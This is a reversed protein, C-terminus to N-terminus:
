GGGGIFAPPWTRGLGCSLCHCVFESIRLPLFIQIIRCCLDCILLLVLKGGETGSSLGGPDSPSLGLLLLRTPACGARQHLGTQKQLMQEHGISVSM